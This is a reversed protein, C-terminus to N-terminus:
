SLECLYIVIVETDSFKFNSNNTIRQYYAYNM